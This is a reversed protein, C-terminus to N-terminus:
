AEIGLDKLEEILQVPDKFLITKIGLHKAPKLNKKKDDIFVIEDPSCAATKILLKYIEPDPKRIKAECSFIQFDFVADLKNLKRFRDVFLPNNNSLLGLRYKGKWEKLVDWLENNIPHFIEVTDADYEELSMNIGFHDNLDQIFDDDTCMGIDHKTHTIEILYDLFEDANVDHKQAVLKAHAPHDDNCFIGGFDFVITKILSICWKKKM